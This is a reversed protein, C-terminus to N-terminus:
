GNEDLLSLAGSKILRAALKAGLAEANEPPGNVYDRIVQSGDRRAVLGQLTM